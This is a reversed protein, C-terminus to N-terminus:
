KEEKEEDFLDLQEKGLRSREIDTPASAWRKEEESFYYENKETGIFRFGLNKAAIRSSGSGLHTDLIIQGKVGFQNLLFEYLAIPKQTPHIKGTICNSLAFVKSPKDFSTWAYEAQSFNPWPQRKDWMVFCRAPPLEFYNGGWIIQNKSVRFLEDFYAKRPPADDWSTDLSNLIRGKLKGRGAFRNMCKRSDSAVSEYAYDGKGDFCRFKNSKIGYPPDVIALDICKDPLAVLLDMCDANFAVNEVTCIDLEENIGFINKFTIM